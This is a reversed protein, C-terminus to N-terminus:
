AWKTEGTKSNYYYPKGESYYTAWDSAASATAGAPQSPDYEQQQTTAAVAGYVQQQQQQYYQQYQQMLQQQQQQQQQPQQMTQAAAGYVQAVAGQTPLAAGYVQPVAAAGYVQSMAGYPNMMQAAAGGYVQAQQQMRQGGVGFTQNAKEIAEHVLRKCEQVNAPTGTIICTVPNKSRDMQIDCGTKDRLLKIHAGGKGIIRGEHGQTTVEIRTHGDPIVSSINSNQQPQQQPQVSGYIGAGMMANPQQYGGYMGGVAGMQMAAYQSPTMMSQHQQQQHGMGLGKQMGFTDTDLAMTELVVKRARIVDIRKGQVSCFGSGKVVKLTAGSVREIDRITAGGKGIVRGEKGPCPIEIACEQDNPIGRLEAPLSDEDISYANVDAASIGNLTEHDRGGAGGFNNITNNRNGFMLSPTDARDSVDGTACAEEIVRKCEEMIDLKGKVTCTGIDRNVKVQVQFRQEIYKLTEGRKGILRGENGNIKVTMTCKKADQEDIKIDLKQEDRADDLKKDGDDDDDRKQDKQHSQDVKTATATTVVNKHDKAVAAAKAEEEEDEKVDDDDDKGEEEKEEEEEENAAATAFADPSRKKKRQNKQEGKKKKKDDDVQEIVAPDFTEKKSKKTEKMPDKSQKPDELDHTNDCDDNKRKKKSTQSVPRNDEQTNLLSARLLDQLASKVRLHKHQVNMANLRDRLKEVTLSSVDELDIM